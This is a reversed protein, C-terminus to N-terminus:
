ELFVINQCIVTTLLLLAGFAIMRAAVSWNKLELGIPLMLMPMMFIWLRETEGQILGTMAELVFQAVCLGAIRAQPTVASRTFILGGFYYAALLFGIWGSGMAFGYLDWPITGPLRRPPFGSVALWQNFLSWQPLCARLTAIPNFGTTLWLILYFATFSGIAVAAHALIRGASMAPRDFWRLLAYGILFLGLVCPLYSFFCTVGFLVGHAAAYRFRDKRLAEAWLITLGATFVPYFQDLQPYFLVLSPSLAIFSAGYFAGGPSGSFYKIFVYTAPVASAALVAMFLGVVEAAPRGDGFFRVVLYNFLIPGPPKSKAHGVLGPLRQPYTALWWRPGLGSVDLRAAEEFFGNATRSTVLDEIRDSNPRHQQVTTYAVMLCLTSFSVLALAIYVVQPRRHFLWQGLFFPIAVVATQWYLPFTPLRRWDRYLYKEDNLGLRHGCVAWAMFIAVGALIAVRAGLGSRPAPDTAPVAPQDVM